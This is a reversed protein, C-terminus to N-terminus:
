DFVPETKVVSERASMTAWWRAMGPAAAIMEACEPITSAYAFIPVAHLDALSMTEGALYADDGLIGALAEVSTAAKPLADTVVAEDCEGGLMPAVMRQMVLGGVLSPYAYSDIVSIAQEMRARGHADAPQLAPGDFAEDVYRMIACTEYVRFGDHEFAPVKAFPQRALHAPEAAAGGFMDVTELQYAVGKEELALLASRTYTSYAPGFVVPDAM